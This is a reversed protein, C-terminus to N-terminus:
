PSLGERRFYITFFIIIFKFKFFSIVEYICYDISMNFLLFCFMILTSVENQNHFSSLILCFHGISISCNLM